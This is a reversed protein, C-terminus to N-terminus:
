SIVLVDPEFLLVHVGSYVSLELPPIEGHAVRLEKTLCPDGEDGDYKWGSTSVRKLVYRNDDADANHAM